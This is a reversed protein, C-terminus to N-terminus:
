HNTVGQLLYELEENYLEVDSEFIIVKRTSGFDSKELKSTVFQPYFHEFSNFNDISYKIKLSDFYEILSCLYPIFFSSM